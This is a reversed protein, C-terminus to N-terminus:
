VIISRISSQVTYFASHMSSSAQGEAGKPLISPLSSKEPSNPSFSFSLPRTRVLTTNDAM